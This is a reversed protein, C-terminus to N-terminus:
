NQKLLYIPKRSVLRYREVLARLQPMKEKDTQINDCFDAPIHIFFCDILNSISQEDWLITPEEDAVVWQQDELRVTEDYTIVWEGPLRKDDIEFGNSYDYDFYENLVAKLHCVQGTHSLGYLQAERKGLLSEHLRRIPYTGVLLLALITPRRLFTPLLSAVLKRFDIQYLSM